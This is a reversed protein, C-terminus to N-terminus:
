LVAYTKLLRKILILVIFCMEPTTQMEFRMILWVPNFIWDFHYKYGIIPM